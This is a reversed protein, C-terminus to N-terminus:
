YNPLKAVLHGIGLSGMQECLKAIENRLRRLNDTGFAKSSRIIHQTPAKTERKVVPVAGISSIILLPIHTPIPDGISELKSQLWSIRKKLLQGKHDIMQCVHSNASTITLHRDFVTIKSGIFLDDEDLPGYPGDIRTFKWCARVGDFTIEFHHDDRYFCLNMGYSLVQGLLGIEKWECRFLLMQDESTSVSLEEEPHYEIQSGEENVMEETTKQNKNEGSSQQQQFYNALPHTDSVEGTVDNIYRVGGEGEDGGATREQRWPPPPPFNVLSMM